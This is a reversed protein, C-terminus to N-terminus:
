KRVLKLLDEESEYAKLRGTLFGLRYTVGESMLCWNTGAFAEQLLKRLKNRSDYEKRSSDGDQVNFEVVLYKGFEPKSLELRIYGEPNITKNLLKELEFTTLIKIKVVADYDEKHEEREKVEDIIRKMQEMRFLADKGEQESICFEKRYKEFLHKDRKEKEYRKKAEKEYDDKEVSKYGCSKCTTTWITIKDDGSIKVIAEQKCEPCLTPTTEYESGDDYVGRRKKCDPCEFFFLVKLPEGENDKLSKCIVSIERNCQPCKIGLPPSTDDIKNQKERDKDMWEELTKRKDQSREIAIVNATYSAVKHVEKDFKEKTYKKFDKHDRKEEFSDKIMWYYELCTEITHLDYLDNYHLKPKLYQFNNM